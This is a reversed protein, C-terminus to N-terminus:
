PYYSADIMHGLFEVSGEFFHCKDKKTKVGHESLRKLVEELHDLSEKTSKGTIIIYDIYCAVADIGQLISEM